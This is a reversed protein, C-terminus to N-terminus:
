AAGLGLIDALGLDRAAGRLVDSPADLVFGRGQGRAAAATAVLVQLCATSIHAVDSGDLCVDGDQALAAQVASHLADARTLDLTQPLILKPSANAQM